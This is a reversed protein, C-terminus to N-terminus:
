NVSMDEINILIIEEFKRSISVIVTLKKIKVLGRKDFRPEYTYHRKRSIFNKLNEHQKSLNESQERFTGYTKLFVLVQYLVTLHM